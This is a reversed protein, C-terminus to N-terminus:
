RWQADFARVIPYGFEERGREAAALLAGSSSRGAGHACLGCFAELVECLHKASGLDPFIRLAEALRAKASALKGHHYDVVAFTSLPFILVGTRSSRRANRWARALWRM